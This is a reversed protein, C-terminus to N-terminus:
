VMWQGVGAGQEILEDGLACVDVINAGRVLLAVFEAIMTHVNDAAVRVATIFIM